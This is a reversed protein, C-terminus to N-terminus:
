FSQKLLSYADNIKQYKLTDGGRDPHHVMSLRRYQDRIQKKSSQAPLQLLELAEEKGDQALFKKWFGDLMEEIQQRDTERLNTYDLYYKQLTDHKTLQQSESSSWPYLVITIQGIELLGSQQEILNLRLQYLANFLVFHVRFLKLSDSLSDKSILEPVEENLAHILEIERMGSPHNRLLTEILKMLEPPTNIPIEHM